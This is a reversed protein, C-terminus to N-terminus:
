AATSNLCMLLTTRNLMGFVTSDHYWISSGNVTVRSDHRPQMYLASKCGVDAPHPSQTQSLLQVTNSPLGSSVRVRKEFCGVSECGCQRAVTDQESAGM